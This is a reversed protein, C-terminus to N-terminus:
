FRRKWRGLWDSVNYGAERSYRMVDQFVESRVSATNLSAPLPTGCTVKKCTTLASSGLRRWSDVQRLVVPRQSARTDMLHATWATVLIESAGSLIRSSSPAPPCTILRDIAVPVGCIMRDCDHHYEASSDEEYRSPCSLFFTTVTPATPVEPGSYAHVGDPSHGGPCLPLGVGSPCEHTPQSAWTEESTSASERWMRRLFGSLLVIGAVNEKQAM